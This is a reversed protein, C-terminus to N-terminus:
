MSVTRRHILRFAKGAIWSGPPSKRTRSDSRLARNDRPIDTHFPETDIKYTHPRIVPERSKLGLIKLLRSKWRAWRSKKSSRGYRQSLYQGFSIEPQRRIKMPKDELAQLPRVRSSRRLSWNLQLDEALKLTQNTSPTHQYLTMNTYM